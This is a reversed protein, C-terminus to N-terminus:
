RYLIVTNGNEWAFGWAEFRQNILNNLICILAIVCDITIGFNNLNMGIRYKSIM